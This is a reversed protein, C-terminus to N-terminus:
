DSICFFFMDRRWLTTCLSPRKVSPIFICSYTRQSVDYIVNTTISVTYLALLRSKYPQLHYSVSSHVTGKHGVNHMISYNPILSILPLRPWPPFFFFCLMWECFDRGRDTEWYSIHLYLQADQLTWSDRVLYNVSHQYFSVNSRVGWRKIEKCPIFICSPLM